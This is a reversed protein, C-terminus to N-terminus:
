GDAAARNTWHVLSDAPRSCTAGQNMPHVLGGRFGAPRAPQHMSRVSSTASPAYSTSPQSRPEAFSGAHERYARALPSGDPDVLHRGTVPRDITRVPCGCREHRRSRQLQALRPDVGTQTLPGNGVRRADRVRGHGPNFTARRGFHAQEHDSSQAGRNAELRSQAQVRVPVRDPIQSVHLQEFSEVIPDGRLKAPSGLHRKRDM